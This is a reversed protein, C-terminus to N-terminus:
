RSGARTRGNSGAVRVAPCFVRGGEGRDGIRFFRADREPGGVDVQVEVVSEPQAALFATLLPEDGTVKEGPFLVGIWGSGVLSRAIMRAHEITADWRYFM